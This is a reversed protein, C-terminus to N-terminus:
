DDVELYAIDLETGQEVKIDVAGCAPCIFIFSDVEFPTRCKLCVGKVPIREIKLRASELETGSTLAEFGFELAESVVDTLAGVRIGVVHVKALGRKKMEGTVTDVISSAISLEHM